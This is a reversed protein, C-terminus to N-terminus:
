SVFMPVTAAPFQSAPRAISAVPIATSSPIQNPRTKPNPLRLASGAKADAASCRRLAALLAAIQEHVEETQCIVLLCRDQFQYPTITGNGGNCGLDQHRGINEIM